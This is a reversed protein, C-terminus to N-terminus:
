TSGPYAYQEFGKAVRGELIATKVIDAQQAYYEPTKDEPAKYLDVKPATVVPQMFWRPNQPINYARKFTFWLSWDIRIGKANCYDQANKMLWFYPNKCVKRRLYADFAHGLAVEPIVLLKLQGWKTLNLEKTIRQLLESIKPASEMVKEENAPNLERKKKLFKNKLKYDSDSTNSSGIKAVRVVMTNSSKYLYLEEEKIPTPFRKMFPNKQTLKFVQYISNYYVKKLAPLISRIYSCQALDVFAPNLIYICTLRHRYIKKIIIGISVLEKIFLNVTERCVGIRSAILQQSPFIPGNKSFFELLFNVIQLKYQDKKFLHQSRIQFLAQQLQNKSINNNM